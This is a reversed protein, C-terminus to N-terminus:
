DHTFVRVATGFGSGRVIYSYSTDAPSIDLTTNDCYIDGGLASPQTPVVLNADDVQGMYVDFIFAPNNAVGGVNDTTYLGTGRKTVTVGQNNSVRHYPGSLDVAPDVSTVLVLRTSETIYGNSNKMSYKVSYFGPSTLDVNNLVPSLTSTAGTVDDTGTAGPDAYAGTGVVTSVIQDGNLTITPYSVTVVKSVPDPNKDCSTLVVAGLMLILLSKKM